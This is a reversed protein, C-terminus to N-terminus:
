LVVFLTAASFVVFVLLLLPSRRGLWAATGAIFSFIIDYALAVGLGLLCVLILGLITVDQGQATEV